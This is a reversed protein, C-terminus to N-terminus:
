RVADELIQVTLDPICEELWVAMDMEEDLIGRCIEAIETQSSGEAAAVLATYSAIEASEAAYDSQVNKLVADRAMAASVGQAIGAATAVMTKVSSPERGLLRLCQAVQDRHRLTEARHAELGARIEPFEAALIAHGELVQLMTQETAHAENLWTILRERDNMADPYCGPDGLPILRVDPSGM